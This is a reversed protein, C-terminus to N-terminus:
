GGGYGYGEREAVDEATAEVGGGDGGMRWRRLGCGGGTDLGGGGEDKEVFEAKERDEASNMRWRCDANESGRQDTSNMQLGSCERQNKASAVKM